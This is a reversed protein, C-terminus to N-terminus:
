KGPVIKIRDNCKVVQMSSGLNFEKRIIKYKREPCVMSIIWAVPTGTETDAIYDDILSYHKIKLSKCLDVLKKYDSVSVSFYRKNKNFM